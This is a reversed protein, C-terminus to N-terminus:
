RLLNIIRRVFLVYGIALSNLAAIIVVAAAIDKIIKIKPHYKDIFMDIILEMATNFIEAIFVLSITLCLIMLEIGKLHFYIGLLFTAVGVLFIIRMNRHCFFLYICGRLAFKFSEFLERTKFVDRFIRNKAM